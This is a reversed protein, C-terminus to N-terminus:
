KYYRNYKDVFSYNNTLERLKRTVESCGSVIVQKGKKLRLTGMCSKVQYDPLLKLLKAQEKTM